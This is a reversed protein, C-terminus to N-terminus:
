KANKEDPKLVKVVVVQGVYENLKPDRISVTGYGYTKMGTKLKKKDSTEYVKATFTGLTKMLINKM